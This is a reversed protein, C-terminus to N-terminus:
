SQKTRKAKSQSPVLLRKVQAIFSDNSNDLGLKEPENERNSELGESPSVMREDARKLPHAYCNSEGLTRYCYLKKNKTTKPPAYWGKGLVSENPIYSAPACGGVILALTLLAHRFSM